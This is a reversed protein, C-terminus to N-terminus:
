EYLAVCAVIYGGVLVSSAPDEPMHCTMLVVAIM